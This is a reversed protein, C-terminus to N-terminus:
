RRCRKGREWAEGPAILDYGCRQCHGPPLRRRDLHWLIATPVAAAVFPIWLPVSVVEIRNLPRLLRPWWRLRGPFVAFTEGRAAYVHLAGSHFTVGWFRGVPRWVTAATWVSVIWIFAIAICMAWGITVVRRMRGRRRM